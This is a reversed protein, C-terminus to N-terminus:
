VGRRKRRWWRFILILLTGLTLFLATLAAANASPDSHSIYHYTFAGAIGAMVLSIAVAFTTALVLKVWLGLSKLFTKPPKQEPTTLAPSLVNPAYALPSAQITSPLEANYPVDTRPSVETPSPDTRRVEPIGITAHPDFPASLISGDVLCYTLTDEFTRNCTPCSKV